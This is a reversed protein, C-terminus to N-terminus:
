EAEQTLLVKYPYAVAGSTTKAAEVYRDINYFLNEGGRPQPIRVLEEAIKHVQINRADTILVTNDTMRNTTVREIGATELYGASFVKAYGNSDLFASFANSMVIAIRPASIRSDGITTNGYSTGTVGERFDEVTAKIATLMDVAYQEENGATLTITQTAGPSTLLTNIAGYIYGNKDDLAGQYLTETLEAAYQRLLAEDHMCERIRRYDISVAYQDSNKTSFILLFGKPPFNGHAISNSPTAQKKAALLVSREYATGFPVDEGDFISFRDRLEGSEIYQNVLKAVAAVDAGYTLTFNSNIIM